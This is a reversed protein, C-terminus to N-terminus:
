GNLKPTDAETIKNQASALGARIQDNEARHAEDRKKGAAIEAKLDDIAQVNASGARTIWTLVTTLAFLGTLGITLATASYRRAILALAFALVALSEYYTQQGV